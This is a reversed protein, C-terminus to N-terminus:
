VGPYPIGYQPAIIRLRSTIPTIPKTHLAHPSEESAGLLPPLAPPAPPTPLLLQGSTLPSHVTVSWQSAEKIPMVRFTVSLAHMSDNAEGKLANLPLTVLSPFIVRLPGCFQVPVAVDVDTDIFQM